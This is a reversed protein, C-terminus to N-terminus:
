CPPVACTEERWRQWYPPRLVRMGLEPADLGPWDLPLPRLPAGDRVVPFGSWPECPTVKWADVLGKGVARKKGLHTIHALLLRIEHADGICWWEMRSNRLYGVELPIRYSKTPGTSLQVRKFKSESLSQAEEIPFRRNIWHRDYEEIEYKATTALYIDREQAVPISVEVCEIDPPPLQDRIAVAAMLLADLAVPHQPLSIAGQVTAIIHLPTM